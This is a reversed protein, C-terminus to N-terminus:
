CRPASILWIFRKWICYLVPVATVSSIRWSFGNRPFVGALTPSLYLLLWAIRWNDRFTRHYDEVQITVEATYSESRQYLSSLYLYYCYLEPMNEDPMIDLHELIRGAEDLKGGYYASAGPFCYRRIKDDLRKMREVVEGTQAKWLKM